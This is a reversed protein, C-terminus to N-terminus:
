RTYRRLVKSRPLEEPLKTKSAVQVRPGSLLEGAAGIPCPRAPRRYPSGPPPLEAFMGDVRGEDLSKELRRDWERLIRQDAPSLEQLNLNAGGM